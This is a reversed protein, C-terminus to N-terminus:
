VANLPLFTNLPNGTKQKQNITEGGEEFSGAELKCSRGGGEKVGVQVDTITSISCYCSNPNLVESGRWGRGNVLYFGARM